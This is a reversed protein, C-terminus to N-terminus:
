SSGNEDDLENDEYDDDDIKLKCNPVGHVEMNINHVMKCFTITNKLFDNFMDNLKLFFIHCTNNM